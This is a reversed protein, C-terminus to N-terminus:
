GSLPPGDVRVATWWGGILMVVMRGRCGKMLSTFEEVSIVSSSEGVCSALPEGNYRIAPVSASVRIAPCYSVNLDLARRDAM